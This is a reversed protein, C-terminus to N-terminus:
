ANFGRLSGRRWRWKLVELALPWGKEPLRGAPMKEINLINDSRYKFCFACIFQPLFSISSM